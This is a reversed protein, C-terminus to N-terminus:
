SYAKLSSASRIRIEGESDIRFASGGSGVKYRSRENEGSSRTLSIGEGVVADCNSDLDAGAGDPLTVTISGDGSRATLGQFDGELNMSGDGTQAELTGRFGIVRVRGDGNTVTMTGDVDRVNISKDGGALKVDGSVGEIRIEGNADIKLNSKKPVFIEIRVQPTNNFVGGKPDGDPNEVNINVSSDTHNEVVNLPMQHRPDSYQTVRYQVESKDWGRIAVSCGRADVTVKPTGKVRITESKREIRPVMPFFSIDAMKAMAEKQRMQADKLKEKFADSSMYEASQEMAKAAQQVSEATIKEIEPQLKQVQKQVKAQEKVAKAVEKNIKASEVSFDADSDWDDDDKEKQPLLDTAPSLSHGDNKRGITLAGNVSELKIQVDGSGLRGYLDRGVYKGKRVPLGFDNTISGNVSEAKVTANADSPLLLNAKGNVTELSIKSGPELRDFDAKVEGNVTSLRATGRINTATVSGNVASVSMRNTFNAISASGNVTEIENLVAGRPVMLQFEVSIKGNNRWGGNDRKWNGYDTEVDFSDQKADIRVEVDALRDKSDATKIYVLKIENRDWAEATISGNVNSVNVRGNPNFPYTQEFRETEDSVSTAMVPSQTSTNQLTTVPNGHSTFALGAFFLTYLWSM